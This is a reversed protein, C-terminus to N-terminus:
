RFLLPPRSKCTATLIEAFQHLSVNTQLNLDLSLNKNNTMKNSKNANGKGSAPDARELVVRLGDLSSIPAGLDM